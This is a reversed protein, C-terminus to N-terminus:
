KEIKVTDMAIVPEGEIKTWLYLQTMVGPFTQAVAAKVPFSLIADKKGDGNVDKFEVSTPNSLQLNRNLSGDPYGDGFFTQKPDIGEANIDKSSFLTVTVNGKDNTSLKSAGIAITAKYNQAVESATAGLVKDFSEVNFQHM